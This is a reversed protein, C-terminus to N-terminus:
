QHSYLPPALIMNTVGCPTDIGYYKLNIKGYVLLLASYSAKISATFIVMFSFTFRAFNM